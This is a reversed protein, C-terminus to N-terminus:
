VRFDKLIIYDHKKCRPCHIRTVTTADYMVYLIFIGMLILSLTDLLLKLNMQLM